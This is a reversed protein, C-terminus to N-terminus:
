RSGESGDCLRCDRGNLMDADLALPEILCLDVQLVRRAVIEIRDSMIGSSRADNSVHWEQANDIRMM